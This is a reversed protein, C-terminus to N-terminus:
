FIRFVVGTSFGKPNLGHDLVSIKGYTFDFPRLDVRSTLKYDAGAVIQWAFKNNSVVPAHEVPPYTVHAVGVEFAAYPVVRHIPYIIRPGVVAFDQHYPSSGWKLISGRAEGGIWRNLQMYGGITPGYLWDNGYNPKGATFEGFIHIGGNGGQTATAVQSFSFSCAFACFLTLLISKRPLKKKM